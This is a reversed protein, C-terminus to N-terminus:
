TQVLESEIQWIQSHYYYAGQSRLLVLESNLNHRHLNIVDVLETVLFNVNVHGLDEPFAGVAANDFSLQVLQGASCLDLVGIDAKRGVGVIAEVLLAADQSVQLMGADHLEQTHHLVGAVASGDEEHLQHYLAERAEQLARLVREGVVHLHADRVVDRQGEGVQVGYLDDVSVEGAVVNEEIGADLGLHGVKAHGLYHPFVHILIFKSLARACSHEHRWLSQTVFRAVGVLEVRKRNPNQDDLDDGACKRSRGNGLYDNVITPGSLFDNADGFLLAPLFVDVINGGVVREQGNGAM